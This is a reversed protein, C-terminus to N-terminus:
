NKIDERMNSQLSYLALAMDTKNMVTPCTWHKACLVDLFIEFSFLQFQASPTGLLLVVLKVLKSFFDENYILHKASLVGSISLLM